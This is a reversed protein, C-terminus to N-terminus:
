HLNNAILTAFFVIVGGTAAAICGQWVTRRFDRQRILPEDVVQGLKETLKGVGDGLKELGDELKIKMAKQEVRMETVIDRMTELGLVRKNLEDLRDDPWKESM